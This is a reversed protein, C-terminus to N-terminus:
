KLKSVVAEYGDVLRQLVEGAGMIEKIMGAIAGCLASGDKMDGEVLADRIRGAGIFTILEETSMRTAEMELMQRSFENKLVRAEAISMRGTAVTATDTAELIAQKLDPHAYSEHTTLFRTGMQVGDAGLAFAAILGRADAIGGAAVVPIKVADVIQPVLVFTPIEHQSIIGGGEYGTAVVADIGEAEAKRAHSISAVAHIVKVGAEKLHKTHVAPSGGATSVIKVGEQIPVHVLEKHSPHEMGINVGFPKDTLSRTKRIQQRLNEPWGGELRAGATATLMGLGGANSVVAALEAGSVWAMGAQIIPYEIGLLECLRTKKL